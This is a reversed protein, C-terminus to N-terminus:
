LMAVWILTGASVVTIVAIVAVTCWICVNGIRQVIASMTEGGIWINNQSSILGVNVAYPPPIFGYMQLTFIIRTYQLRNEM